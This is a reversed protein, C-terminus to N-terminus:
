KQVMIKKKESFSDDSDDGQLRDGSKQTKLKRQAKFDKKRQKKNRVNIWTQNMENLIEDKQAKLREKEEEKRLREQEEVLISVQKNLMSTTVANWEERQNNNTIRQKDGVEQIYETFRKKLKLYQYSHRSTNMRMEYQFFGEGQLRIGVVRGRTMSRVTIVGDEHREILVPQAEWGRDIIQQTVEGVTKDKRIKKAMSWTGPEFRCVCWTGDDFQWQKTPELAIGNPGDLPREFEFGDNEGNDEKITKVLKHSDVSQEISYTANKQRAKQLTHLASKTTSPKKKVAPIAAVIDALKAIRFKLFPLNVYDLMNVLRNSIETKEADTQLELSKFKEPAQLIVPGRM